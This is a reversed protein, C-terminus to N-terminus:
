SGQEWIGLALRAFIIWLALGWSRLLWVLGGTPYCALPDLFRYVRRECHLFAPLPLLELWSIGTM